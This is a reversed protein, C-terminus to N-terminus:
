MEVPNGRTVIPNRKRPAPGRGPKMPRPGPVVTGGHQRRPRHPPRPPPRPISTSDHGSVHYASQGRKRGAQHDFGHSMSSADYMALMDVNATGGAPRRQATRVHRRTPEPYAPARLREPYQLETHSVGGQRRSKMPPSM